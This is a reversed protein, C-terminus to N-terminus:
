IHVYRRVQPYSLSQFDTHRRNLVLPEPWLIGGQLKSQVHENIRPDQINIFSEVFSSYDKILNDRLEFVDM